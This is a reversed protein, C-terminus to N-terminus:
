SRSVGGAPQQLGRVGLGGDCSIVVGTTARANSRSALQVYHGTYDEPSALFQLPLAAQALEDIGPVASLTQQDLGLARPGRVDTLMPGPAVGNVRVGPALEYALQRVLGVVAHKSATYVIGGTGAYFSSMSATLIICGDCNLLAPAAAKAGLLYGKVNIAFVEDFAQGLADAPSGLLDAFYDFIGANGVFTDLKGFARVATAVARENDAVTTVDGVVGVVAGGLREVVADVREQSRDFVAVRAGENVFREVLALGLGSGGGTVLAADGELWGMPGARETPTTGTEVTRLVSPWCSCLERSPLIILLRVRTSNHPPFSNMSPGDCREGTALEIARATGPALPIAVVKGGKRTITLPEPPSM